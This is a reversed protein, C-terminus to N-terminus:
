TDSKREPITVAATKAGNETIIIRTNVASPVPNKIM